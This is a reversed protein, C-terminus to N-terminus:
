EYEDEELLKLAEILETGADGTIKRMTDPVAALIDKKLFINEKLGEADALCKELKRRRGPNIEETGANILEEIARIIIKIEEIEEDIVYAHSIIGKYNASVKM